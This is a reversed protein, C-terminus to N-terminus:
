RVNGSAANGQATDRKEYFSQYNNIGKYLKDDDGKEKIEKNVALKREFIAQADKDVDTDVETISTAGADQPGSSMASRTSKFSFKVENGSPNGKPDTFLM